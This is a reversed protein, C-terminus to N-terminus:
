KLDTGKKLFKSICKILTIRYTKCNWIKLLEMHLQHIDYHIWYHNIRIHSVKFANLGCKHYFVFINYTLQHTLATGIMSGRQLRKIFYNLSTMRHLSCWQVILELHSTIVYTNYLLICSHSLGLFCPLLVCGVELEKMPCHCKTYCVIVEKRVFDCLM